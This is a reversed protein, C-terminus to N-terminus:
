QKQIETVLNSSLFLKLVSLKNSSMTEFSSNLVDGSPLCPLLLHGSMAQHCPIFCLRDRHGLSFTSFIPVM